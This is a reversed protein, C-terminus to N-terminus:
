TLNSPIICKLCLGDNCQFMYQNTSIRICYFYLIYIHRNNKFGMLTYALNDRKYSNNFLGEYMHFNDICKTQQLMIWISLGGWIRLNPNNCLFSFTSSVKNLILIGGGGRGWNSRKRKVRKDCLSM